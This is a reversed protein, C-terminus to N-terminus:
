IGAKEFAAIVEAHTRGLDDNWDPISAPIQQLALLVTYLKTFAVRSQAPDSYAKSVAGSACWAVADASCPWVHEGAKNRAFAHQTWGQKIYDLATM